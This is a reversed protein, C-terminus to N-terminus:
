DINDWMDLRNQIEGLLEKNNAYLWNSACLVKLKNCAEAKAILKNEVLRDIIWLMGHYEIVKAKAFNRVARDSSLIVAPLQAALYIVTKDVESIAKPFHINNIASRQEGAINHVTLKGTTQFTQLTQQQEPYLENIVDLSTHIDLQIKFFAAILDTNCLDIFICADTVAVVM